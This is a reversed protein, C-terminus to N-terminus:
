AGRKEGLAHRGGAIFRAAEDATLKRTMQGDCHTDFHCVASCKTCLLIRGEKVARARGREAFGQSAKEAKAKSAYGDRNNTPSNYGAHGMTIYFRGTETREKVRVSCEPGCEGRMCAQSSNLHDTSSQRLGLASMGALPAIQPTQM